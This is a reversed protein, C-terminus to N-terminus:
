AVAVADVGRRHQALVRDASNLRQDGLVPDPLLPERINRGCVTISQDRLVPDPLLPERTNRGCVTISQHAREPALWGAM